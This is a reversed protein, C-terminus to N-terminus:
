FDSVPGDECEFNCGEDHPFNRGMDDDDERHGPFTVSERRM